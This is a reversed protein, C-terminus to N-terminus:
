KNTKFSLYFFFGYTCKESKWMRLQRKCSFHTMETASAEDFLFKFFFITRDWLANAM